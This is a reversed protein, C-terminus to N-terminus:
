STYNGGLLSYRVSVIHYLKINIGWQGWTPKKESGTAGLPLYDRKILFM